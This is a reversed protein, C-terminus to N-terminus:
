VFSLFSAIIIIEITNNSKKIFIKLFIKIIFISVLVNFLKQVTNMLMISSPSGNIIIPDSIEDNIWIKIESSVTNFIIGLFLIIPKNQAADIPKTKGTHSQAIIGTVLLSIFFPTGVPMAIVKISETGM